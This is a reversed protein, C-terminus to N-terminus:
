RGKVFDMLMAYTRWLEDGMGLYDKKEESWVDRNLLDKYYEYFGNAGFHTKCEYGYVEADDPNGDCDWMITEFTEFTHLWEHIYAEEPVPNDDFKALLAGNEFSDLYSDTQIQSFSYNGDMVDPYALGAWDQALTPDEHDAYRATCMVSNYDSFTDAFEGFSEPVLSCLDKDLYTVEDCLKTTIEVNVLGNTYESVRNAFRESMDNLLYEAEEDSMEVDLHVKKGDFGKGDVNVRKVVIWLMPWNVSYANDVAMSMLADRDEEDIDELFDSINPNLKDETIDFISGKENEEKSTEPERSLRAVDQKASSKNKGKEEQTAAETEKQVQIVAETEKQAKPAAASSKCASLVCMTMSLLVTSFMIRRQKKM